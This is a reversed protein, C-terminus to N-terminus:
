LGDVWPTEMKEPPTNQPMSAGSLVVNASSRRVLGRRDARLDDVADLRVPGSQHTAGGVRAVPIGHSSDYVSGHHGHLHWDGSVYQSKGPEAGPALGHFALYHGVVAARFAFPDGGARRRRFRPQSELARRDFRPNVLVTAM